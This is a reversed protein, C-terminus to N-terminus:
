ATKNRSSEDHEELPIIIKYKNVKIGESFGKSYIEKYKFTKFYTEALQWGLYGVLGLLAPLLFEGGMTFPRSLWEQVALTAIQSIMAGTLIGTLLTKIYKKM